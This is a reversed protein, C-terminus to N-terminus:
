EVVFTRDHAAIVPEGCDVVHARADVEVAAGLGRVPNDDVSNDLM